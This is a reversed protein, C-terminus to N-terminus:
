GILIRVDQHGTTERGGKHGKKIRFRNRSNQTGEGEQVEWGPNVDLDLFRCDHGKIRPDIGM